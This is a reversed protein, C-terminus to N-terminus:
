TRLILVENIRINFIVAVWGFLIGGAFVGLDILKPLMAGGDDLLAADFGSATEELELKLGDNLSEIHTKQHRLPHRFDRRISAFNDAGRDSLLILAQPLFEFFEAEFQQLVDADVSIM